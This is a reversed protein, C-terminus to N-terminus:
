DDSEGENNYEKEHEYYKGCFDCQVKDIAM